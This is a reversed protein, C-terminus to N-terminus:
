MNNVLLPFGAWYANERQQFRQLVASVREEFLCPFVLASFEIQSAIEGAIEAERMMEAHAEWIGVVALERLLLRQKLVEFEAKQFTTKGM